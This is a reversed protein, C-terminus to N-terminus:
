AQYGLEKSVAHCKEQVLPIMSQITADTMTINWGTISIAAVVKGLHNYIPAAVCCIGEENELKDIAYGQERVQRLHDVFITPDTITHATCATLGVNEIYQKRHAEPQYALLVKGVATSHIPARSGVFSAMRIARQSDIKDIYMIEHRDLIALHVTEGSVQALQELFPRAIQRVDVAVLFQAALWAVKAGLRYRGTTEERAVYGAQVLTTLFRYLTSKNMRLDRSILALDCPRKAVALYELIEVARLVSNNMASLDNQYIFVQKV